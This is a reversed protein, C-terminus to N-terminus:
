SWCHVFLLQKYGLKNGEHHTTISKGVKGEEETDTMVEEMFSM